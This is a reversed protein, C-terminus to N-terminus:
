MQLPPHNIHDIKEALIFDSNTLGNVKHTWLQVVVKGWSLQIDPHHGEIEALAGVKNTFALAKAFDPFRFEREIHRDSVVKWDKDVKKMLNKVEDSTLCHTATKCDSCNKQSLAKEKM